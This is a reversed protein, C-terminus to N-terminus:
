IALADVLVPRFRELSAQTEFSATGQVFSRAIVVACLTRAAVGLAAFSSGTGPGAAAAIVRAAHPDETEALFVLMHQARAGPSKQSALTGRLTVCGMISQVAPELDAPTGASLWVTPLDSGIAPESLQWTGGEMCARITEALGVLDSRPRYPEGEDEILGIGAATQIETFRWEGLSDVPRHALSSLFTATEGDALSAATEFAETVNGSIRHIAYSLLGAQWALDRWDIRNQDIVALAVVGRRAVEGDNSRLARVVARRAYNLVTYFDDMTLSSRQQARDEGSSAAFRDVFEDILADKPTDAFHLLSLEGARPQYAVGALPSPGHPEARHRAEAARAARM